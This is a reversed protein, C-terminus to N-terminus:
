KKIIDKFRRLPLIKYNNYKYPRDWMVKTYEEDLIPVKYLVVEKKEKSAEVDLRVHFPRTHPLKKIYVTGLKLPLKFVEQEKAIVNITEDLFPELISYYEAYSMPREGRQGEIRLSDKISNYIDKLSVYKDKYKKYTQNSQKHRTKM